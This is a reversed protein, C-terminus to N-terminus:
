ESVAATTAACVALAAVAYSGSLPHAALAQSIRDFSRRPAVAIGPRKISVKGPLARETLDNVPFRGRFSM